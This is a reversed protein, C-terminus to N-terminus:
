SEGRWIMVLVYVCVGITALMAAVVIVITLLIVAGGLVALMWLIWGIPTVIIEM